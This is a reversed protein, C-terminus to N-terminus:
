KNKMKNQNKKQRGVMKECFRLSSVWFQACGSGAIAPTNKTKCVHAGGGSSGGYWM